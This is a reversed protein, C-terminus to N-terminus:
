GLGSRRATYVDLDLLSMCHDIANLLCRLSSSVDACRGVFRASM